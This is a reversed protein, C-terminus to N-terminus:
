YEAITSVWSGSSVAAGISDMLIEHLGEDPNQVASDSKITEKLIMLFYFHCYDLSLSGM